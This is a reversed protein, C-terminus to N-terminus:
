YKPRYNASIILGPAAVAGGKTELANAVATSRATSFDLALEKPEFALLRRTRAEEGGPSFSEPSTSSGGAGAGGGGGSRRKGDSDYGRHKETSKFKSPSLAGSGGPTTGGGVEEGRDLLEQQAKMMRRDAQRADAAEKGAAVIEGAAQLEVEALAAENGYVDTGADYEGRALRARKALVLETRKLVLGPAARSVALTRLDDAELVRKSISLGKPWEGARDELEVKLTLKVEWGPHPRPPPKKNFDVGGTVASALMGGARALFGGGGGWRKTTSPSQPKKSDAGGGGVSGDGRVSGDDGASAASGTQEGDAISVHKELKGRSSVGSPPPSGPPTKNIVKSTTTTANKVVPEPKKGVSLNLRVIPWRTDPLAEKLTRETLDSQNPQPKTKPKHTHKKHEPPLSFLDLRHFM